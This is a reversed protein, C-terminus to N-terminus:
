LEDEIVECERLRAGGRSHTLKDRVAAATREKRIVELVAQLCPLSIEPKLRVSVSVVKTSYGTLRALEANSLGYCRMSKKIREARLEGKFYKYNISGSIDAKLVESLKILLLLSPRFIGKEAALVATRTYGVADGLVAQTIGLEKRRKRINRLFERTIKDMAISKTNVDTGRKKM